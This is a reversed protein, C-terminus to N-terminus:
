QEDGAQATQARDLAADVREKSDSLIGRLEALSRLDDNPTPLLEVCLGYVRLLELAGNQLYQLYDRLGVEIDRLAKLRGLENLLDKQTPEKM